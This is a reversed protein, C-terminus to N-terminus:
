ALNMRALLKRFRPDPRLGDYLPMSPLHSAIADRATIARDFWEFALDDGLGLYALAFAIPPVTGAQALAELEAFLARAQEIQGAAGCVATMAGIVVPQHNHEYVDWCVRFGEEFSGQLLLASGLFWRLWWLDPALQVAMRNAEVARDHQRAVSLVLGLMGHATPSLPDLAVAREAEQVAQDLRLRPVLHYWAHRCLIEASGPSLEFARQFAAEAGPWDYDLIGRFIGQV